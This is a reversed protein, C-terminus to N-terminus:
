ALVVTLAPEFTVTTVGSADGVSLPEIALTVAVAAGAPKVPVKLPLVVVPAKVIEM